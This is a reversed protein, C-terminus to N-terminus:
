PRRVEDDLTDSQTRMSGIRVLLSAWLFDGPHEATKAAALAEVQALGAALSRRGSADWDGTIVIRSLDTEIATLAQDAALFDSKDAVQANALYEAYPKCRFHNAWVNCDAPRGVAHRCADPALQPSLAVIHYQWELSQLEYPWQVDFGNKAFALNDTIYVLAHMEAPEGPGNVSILDGPKQPEDASLERCLPSHTWFGIEEAQAARRTLAIRASFLATNWCNPGSHKTRTGHLRAVVSPTVAEISASCFEGERIVPGPAGPTEGFSSKWDALGTLMASLDACYTRLVLRGSADKSVQVSKLLDEESLDTKRAQPRVSLSAQERLTRFAETLDQLGREPVSPAASAVTCSLLACLLLTKSMGPIM